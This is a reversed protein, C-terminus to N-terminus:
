AKDDLNENLLKEISNIMGQNKHFVNTYKLDLLQANMFKRLKQNEEYLRPADAILEADETSICGTISFGPEHFQPGNLAIIQNYAANRLEFDYNVRWPGRTFGKHEKM